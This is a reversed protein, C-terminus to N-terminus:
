KAAPAAAAPPVNPQQAALNQGAAMAAGIIAEATTFWEPNIGGGKLALIANSIQSLVGLWFETTQLVPKVGPTNAKTAGRLINYFATLVTIIVLSATAPIVGQAAAVLAILTGLVTVWFPLTKWGAKIDKIENILDTAPQRAKFLLKLKEIFGMM